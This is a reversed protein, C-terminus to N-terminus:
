TGEGCLGLYELLPARAMQEVECIWSGADVDPDAMAMVDGWGRPWSVQIPAKMRVCVSLLFCICRQPVVRLSSFIILENQRM